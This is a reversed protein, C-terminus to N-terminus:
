SGHEKTPILVVLAEVEEEETAVVEKEAVVENETAVVKEAEEKRWEVRDLYM